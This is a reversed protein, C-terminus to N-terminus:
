SRSEVYGDDRFDAFLEAGGPGIVLNSGGGGGTPITINKIAVPDITLALRGLRFLGALDLNQLRVHRALLAVLEMTRADGANQQRLMALASIILYAQNTSRTIDGDIWDHRNRSFALAQSGNIRAPGVSFNAGSFDQDSHAQQINIHIGGIADVMQTFHPFNTTIAYSIQIGMMQNLQGVIGPLGQLAHYANIKDGAPATTDRPVNIFTARHKVPDVGVVHIADGLGKDADSRGDNGLILIFFPKDPAGSYQADGVATVQFWTSGEAVQDDLFLWGAGFTGLLLMTCIPLAILFRSFPRRMM